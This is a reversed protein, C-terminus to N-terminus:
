LGLGFAYQRKKGALLLLSRREGGTVPGVRHRMVKSPFAVAAGAPFVRRTVSRAPRECPEHTAGDVHAVGGLDVPDSVDLELVGGTYAAPETFYAVVSVLRQDAADADTHWKFEADSFQSGFRNYIMPDTPVVDVDAGSESDHTLVDHTLVSSGSSLLKWGGLQDAQRALGLMKEYLWATADSPHIESFTVTSDDYEQFLKAAREM